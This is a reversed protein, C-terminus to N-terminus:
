LCVRANDQSCGERLAELVAQMLKGVDSQINRTHGLQDLYWGLVVIEATIACVRDKPFM